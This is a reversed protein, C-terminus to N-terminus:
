ENKQPEAANSSAVKPKPAQVSTPKPTQVSTPKPAQVSTPAPAQVSAKGEKIKQVLEECDKKWHGQKRCYACQNEGLDKRGYYGQGGPAPRTSRAVMVAGEQEEDSDAAVLARATSRQGKEPAAEMAMEQVHEFRKVMREEFASALLTDDEIELAENPSGVSPLRRRLAAVFARKRWQLLQSEDKELLMAIVACQRAFRARFQEAGEGKRMELAFAQASNGLLQKVAVRAAKMMVVKATLEQRRRPELDQLLDSTCLYRLIAMDIRKRGDTSGVAERYLGVDRSIDNWRSHFEMCDAISASLDLKKGEKAALNNQIAKLAAAIEKREKGLDEESMGEGDDESKRSPKGKNNAM